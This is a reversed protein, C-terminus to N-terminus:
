APRIVRHIAAEGAGYISEERIYSGPGPAHVMMGNGVHLGVHRDDDFFLVLDGPELGALTVPAGGLAQQHAARPLTVGAARWAAQTLSSCDYSDPGTAGWVCPKGIQARAFAIAKEARLARSSEPTPAPPTTVTAYSGTDTTPAAPPPTFTSTNATLPTAFAGTDTPLPAAFPGTVPAAFAGTDTAPPAPATPPPTFTGTNAIVPAAFSGTDVTLPAAFAGTDAPLTATLPSAFSGTDTLAPPNYPETGTPLATAGLSAAAEQAPFVGPAAWQPARWQDEAPQPVQGAVTGLADPTPTAPLPAARLATGRSLLDRAAALKRRNEAKSVAPAPRGAGAAPLARPEQPPAVPAAPLAAVPLAATQAPARGAPELMARSPLEAAARGPLELPTRDAQVTMVRSTLEPLPRGTPEAAAGSPLEPLARAGTRGSPGAPLEPLGRGPTERDGGPRGGDARDVSRAPATPRDPMRDAPLAAPVSPGLKARATDFWQRAVEDLAPDSRRNPRKALPVGRSRTAGAMARTANFNGTADEAQNYLSNIRQRVEDRSDSAM